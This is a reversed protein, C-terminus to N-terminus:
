YNNEKVKDTLIDNSKFIINLTYWFRYMHSLVNFYNMHTFIRFIVFIKDLIDSSLNMLIAQAM